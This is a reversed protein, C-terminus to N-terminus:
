VETIGHQKRRESERVKIRYKIIFTGVCSTLCEEQLWENTCSNKRAKRRQKDKPFQNQSFYIQRLTYSTMSLSTCVLCEVYKAALVGALVMRVPVPVALLIQLLTRETLCFLVIWLDRIGSLMRKMM